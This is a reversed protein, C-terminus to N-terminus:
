TRKNRTKPLCSFTDWCSPDNKEVFPTNSQDLMPLSTFNYVQSDDGWWSSTILPSLKTCMELPFWFYIELWREECILLFTSLFWQHLLATRCVFNQALLVCSSFLLKRVRRWNLALVSGKRAHWKFLSSLLAIGFYVEGSIWFSGM